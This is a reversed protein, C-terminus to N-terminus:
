ARGRQQALCIFAPSRELASGHKAVALVVQVNVEATHAANDRLILARESDLVPAHSIYREDRPHVLSHNEAYDSEVRVFVPFCVGQQAASANLLVAPPLIQRREDAAVNYIRAHRVHLGEACEAVDARPYACQQGNVADGHRAYRMRVCPKKRPLVDAGYDFAAVLQPTERERVALQQACPLFIGGRELRAFGNRPYDAGNLFVADKDLQRRVKRPKRFVALSNFVAVM